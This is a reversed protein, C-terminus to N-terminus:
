TKFILISSLEGDCAFLYEDLAKFFASCLYQKKKILWLSIYLFLTKLLTEKSTFM